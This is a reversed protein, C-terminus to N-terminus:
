DTCDTCYEQAMIIVLLILIVVIVGNSFITCSMQNSGKEVKEVKESNEGKEGNVSNLGVSSSLLNNSNKVPLVVLGEKESDIRDLDPECIKRHMSSGMFDGNLCSETQDLGYKRKMLDMHDYCEATFDLYCLHAKESDRAFQQLKRCEHFSVTQCSVNAAERITTVLPKEIFYSSM